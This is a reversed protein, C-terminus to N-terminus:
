IEAVFARPASRFHELTVKVLGRTRDETSPKISTIIHIIFRREIPHAILRQWLQLRNSSFHRSAKGVRLSFVKSDPLRNMEDRLTLSLWGFSCTSVNADPVASCNHNRQRIKSEAKCAVTPLTLPNEYLFRASM